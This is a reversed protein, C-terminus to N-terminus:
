TVPDDDSIDEWDDDYEDLFKRLDSTAEQTIENDDFRVGPPNFLGWRDIIYDKSDFTEIWMAFLPRFIEIAERLLWLYDLENFGAQQLGQTDKLIDLAAKRILTANEMKQDYLDSQHAEAIATPIHFASEMMRKSYYSYMKLDYPSQADTDEVPIGDIIHEIIELIAESQTFVPLYRYADIDRDYYDDREENM